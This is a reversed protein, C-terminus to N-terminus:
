NISNSLLRNEVLYNIIKNTAGKNAEVFDKAVANKISLSSKNGLLDKVNAVLADKTNFSFAAGLKILSDAERSFGYYKGFCITKGYVAPELINHIGSKNFGGGVYCITAYRYIKSLMGITDVILVKTQAHIENNISESLLFSNSFQAKLEDIHQKNIEHPAIVLKIEPCEKLLEVLFKEDDKWTSGAILVDGSSCFKEFLPHTFPSSAIDIVRDFRTDGNVSLPAKINFEELLKKSKLDQLFIHSYYDLMNRFFSGGKGFFALNPTFMASILLTPIGRERLEHLYYFWSDYKIFLALRPNVNNLFERASKKGDLPLYFIIDAGKYNKRIEYGSPSFFTLLIRYKPYSIKIRELLERGQEFEGLSACHMWVIPSLSIGCAHKIRQHINRRGRVWHQAKENGLASIKIGVDYLLLFLNYFFLM